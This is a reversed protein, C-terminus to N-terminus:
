LQAPVRSLRVPIQPAPPPLGRKGLPWDRPPASVGDGTSRSSVPMQLNKNSMHVYLSSWLRILRHHMRPQVAVLNTGVLFAFMVIHDNLGNVEVEVGDAGARSGGGWAKAEVEM